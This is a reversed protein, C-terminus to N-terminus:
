RLMTLYCQKATVRAQRHRKGFAIELRFKMGRLIREQKFNISRGKAILLLQNDSIPFSQDDVLLNGRGSRVLIMRHYILRCAISEFKKDLYNVSFSDKLEKEFVAKSISSLM